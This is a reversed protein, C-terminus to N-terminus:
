KKGKYEDLTIEKALPNCSLLRKAIIYISRLINSKKDSLADIAYNSCTPIKTCSGRGFICFVQYLKVIKIAIFRLNLFTTM